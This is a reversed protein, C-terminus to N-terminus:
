CVQPYLIQTMGLKWEFEVTAGNGKVATVRYQYQGADVNRLLYDRLPLDLKVEETLKSLNLFVATGGKFEVCVEMVHDQLLGSAPAAFVGPMQRVTITRQYVIPTDTDLICDLVKERDPVVEIGEDDLVVRIPGGGAPPAGIPAVTMGLEQGPTLDVPKSLDVNLVVADVPNAGRTLWAKLAKVRVPSEIANRAIAAVSGTGPDVTETVELVAGATDDLRLSFPIREVVDGVTVEVQGSLLVPSAGFLADYVTMFDDMPLVLQDLIGEHLVVNAGPRPQLPGGVAGAKPIALSFTVATAALPEFQLQSGTPVYQSLMPAAAQLRDLDLMAAALFSFYATMGELGGSDRDIELALNPLHPSEKARSLAFRDPLYYFTERRAADQYYNFHRADGDSGWPVSYRILGPRPGAPASVVDAFVSPHVDPSFCFPRPAVDCPLSRSAKVYTSGKATEPPVRAAMELPDGLRGAAAHAALRGDGMDGDLLKGWPTGVPAPGLSVPSTMEMNAVLSGWKKLHWISSEPVGVDFSRLVVLEAQFDKDTLAWYVEDFTEAEALALRAGICGEAPAAIPEFARERSVAGNGLRYRLVVKYQHPMETPLLDAPIAPNPYKELHVVLSRSGGPASESRFWVCPQDSPSAGSLVRERRLRYCPLYFKVDPQDAKCFLEADSVVGGPSVPCDITPPTEEPVADPRPIKRKAHTAWFGALELDVPAAVAPKTAVKVSHGLSVKGDLSNALSLYKMTPGPM